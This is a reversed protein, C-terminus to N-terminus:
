IRYYLNGILQINRFDKVCTFYNVKEMEYETLKVVIYIIVVDMRVFKGYESGTM